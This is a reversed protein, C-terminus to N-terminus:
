SGKAPAQAANDAPLALGGEFLNLGLERDFKITLVTITIAWLLSALSGVLFYEAEVRENLERYRAVTKLAVVAVMVEWSSAILGLAILLRELPGIWRGATSTSVLAKETDVAQPAHDTKDPLLGSLHLIVRCVHNGVWTLMWLAVLYITLQGLVTMLSM